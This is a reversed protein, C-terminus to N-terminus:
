KKLLYQIVRKKEQQILVKMQLKMHYTALLVHNSTNYDLSSIITEIQRCYEFDSLRLTSLPILGNTSDKQSSVLKKLFRLM